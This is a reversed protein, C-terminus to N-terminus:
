GSCCEPIETLGVLRIIDTKFWAKTSEPLETYRESRGHHAQSSWASVNCYRHPDTAAVEAPAYRRADDSIVRTRESVM